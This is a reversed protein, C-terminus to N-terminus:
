IAPPQWTCFHILYTKEGEPHLLPSWTEVWTVGSNRSNIIDLLWISGALPFVSRSLFCLGLAWGEGPASVLNPTPPPPRPVTPYCLLYLFQAKQLTLSPPSYPSARQVQQIWLLLGIGVTGQAAHAWNSPVDALHPHALHFLQAAGGRLWVSSPALHDM